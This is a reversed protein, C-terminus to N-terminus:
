ADDDWDELPAKRWLLSVSCKVGGPLVACGGIGTEDLQKRFEVGVTSQEKIDDAKNAPLTYWFSEDLISAFYTCDGALTQNEM